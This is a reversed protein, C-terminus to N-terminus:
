ILKYINLILSISLKGLRLLKKEIKKTNNIVLFLIILITYLYFSTLYM